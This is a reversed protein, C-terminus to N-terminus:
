VNDEGKDVQAEDGQPLEVDSPILILFMQGEVDIPTWGKYGIRKLALMAVWAWATLWAFKVKNM